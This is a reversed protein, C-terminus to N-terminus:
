DSSIGLAKLADKRNTVFDDLTSIKGHMEKYEIDFTDDRWAHLAIKLDSILDSDTLGAAKYKINLASILKRYKMYEDAADDFKRYSEVDGRKDYVKHLKSVKNRM